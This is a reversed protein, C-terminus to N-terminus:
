VMYYNVAKLRSAQRADQSQMHGYKKKRDVLLDREDDTLNKIIKKGLRNEQLKHGGVGAAAGLIATGTGTVLAPVVGEKAGVAAGGLAGAGASLLVNRFTNKNHKKFKDYHPQMRGDFEALENDKKYLRPVDRLTTTAELFQNKRGGGRSVVDYSIGDDGDVVTPKIKTKVNGRFNEPYKSSFMQKMNFPVENKEKHTKMVDKTSAAMKEIEASYFEKAEKNIYKNCMDRAEKRILTTNDVRELEEAEKRIRKDYIDKVAKGALVTGGTALALGTGFRGPHKKIYAPLNKATQKVKSISHPTAGAIEDPTVDFPGRSAINRKIANTFKNKSVAGAQDPDIEFNRYKDYDMKIKFVKGGKSRKFMNRKMEDVSKKGLDKYQNTLADYEKQVTAPMKSYNVLGGEEYQSRIANLKKSVESYDMMVPSDTANMKSYMQAIPKMGTVHVKGSSNKMYQANQIAKSAGTGGKNAKLGEALIKDVNQNSTGHYLTKKGLVMDGSARAMGAGAVLKVGDAKISDKDKNSSAKNAEMNSLNDLVVKGM